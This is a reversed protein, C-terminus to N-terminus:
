TWDRLLGPRRALAARWLDGFDITCRDAMGPMWVPTVCVPGQLAPGDTLPLDRDTSLMHLGARDESWEGAPVACELELLRMCLQEFQLWGLADLGYLRDGPM